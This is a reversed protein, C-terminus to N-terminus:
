TRTRTSAAVDIVVIEVDLEAGATKQASPVLLVSVNADIGLKVLCGIDEPLCVMGLEALSMVHQRTEVPSLLDIRDEEQLAQRLSGDLDRRVDEKANGVSPLLAVSLPAAMAPAAGALLLVTISFARTPRM